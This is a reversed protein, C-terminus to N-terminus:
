VKLQEDLPHQGHAVLCALAMHAETHTSIYQEFTFNQKNGSYTTTNLKNWTAMSITDVNNVGLYHNHLAWYAARGDKACQFGCVYTWCEKDRTMSAIKTWVNTNDTKYHKTNVPPNAGINQVIPARTIMQAQHTRLGMAPANEPAISKRVVYPLPIKSVGLCDVLYERIAEMTPPWDKANIDPADPEKHDKEQKSLPKLARLNALTLAAVITTL